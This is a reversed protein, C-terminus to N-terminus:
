RVHHLINKSDLSIEQARLAKGVSSSSLSIKVCLGVAAEGRFQNKIGGKVDSRGRVGESMASSSGSSAMISVSISVLMSDYMLVSAIQREAPTVPTKGQVIRNISKVLKSNFYRTRM